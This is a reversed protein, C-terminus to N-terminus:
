SILPLDVSPPNKEFNNTTLLVLHQILGICGVAFLPSLLLLLCVIKQRSYLLLNLKTLEIIKGM